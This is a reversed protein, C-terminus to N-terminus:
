KIISRIVSVNHVKKKKLKIPETWSGNTKDSLNKWDQGGLAGEPQSRHKTKLMGGGKNLRNKNEPSVLHELRM